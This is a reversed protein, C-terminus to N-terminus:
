SVSRGNRQNRQRSLVRCRYTTRLLSGSAVPEWGGAKWRCKKGGLWPASTSGKRGAHALQMGAVRGSEPYVACDGGRRSMRISYIGADRAFDGRAEVATAETFV